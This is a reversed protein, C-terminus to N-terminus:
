LFIDGFGVEYLECEWGRFVYYSLCFLIAVVGVGFELGGPNKYQAGRTERPARATAKRMWRLWGAEEKERKVGLPVGEEEEASELM